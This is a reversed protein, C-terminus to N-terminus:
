KFISIPRSGCHRGSEASAAERAQLFLGEGAPPPIYLVAVGHCNNMM